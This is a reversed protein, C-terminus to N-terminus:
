TAVRARQMAIFNVELNHWRAARTETGNTTQVVKKTRILEDDGGTVYADFTITGQGYPLIVRHSATPASLIDYVTDYQAEAGIKAKLGLTYNYYTGIIDRHMRGDAVTRGTNETDLVSFSRKLSTWIIDTYYTGDISVGYQAADNTITTAAM